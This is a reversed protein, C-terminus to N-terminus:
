RVTGQIHGSKWLVHVSEADIAGSVGCVGCNLDLNSIRSEGFFNSFVIVMRHVKRVLAVVLLMTIHAEVDTLTVSFSVYVSFLLVQVIM